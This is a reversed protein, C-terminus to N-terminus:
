LSAEQWTFTLTGTGIIYIINNGNELVLQPVTSTGQAVSASYNGWKLVMDASATLVPVVAKGNNTVTEPNAIDVTVNGESWIYNQGSLTPIDITDIQYSTETGGMDVVQAGTTPTTGSVYVDM